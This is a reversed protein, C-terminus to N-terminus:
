HDTADVFDESSRVNGRHGPVVRAGFDQIRAWLLQRSNAFNHMHAAGELRMTEVEPAGTYQAAEAELDPNVDIEAAVVLVPVDVASVHNAVIGPTLMSVAAPPVTASAWTPVRGDPRLPYGELDETVLWRPEDRFHFAHTMLNRTLQAAADELSLGEPM